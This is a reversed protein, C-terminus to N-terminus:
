QFTLTYVKIKCRNLKRTLLEHKELTETSQAHFVSKQSIEIMFGLHTCTPLGLHLLGMQPAVQMATLSPVGNQEIETGKSEQERRLPAVRELQFM